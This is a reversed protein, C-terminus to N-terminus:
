GQQYHPAIRRRSLEAMLPLESWALLKGSSIQEALDAAITLCKQGASRWESILEVTKRPQSTEGTTGTESKTTIAKGPVPKILYDSLVQNRLEDGNIAYMWGGLGDLRRARWEDDARQIEYAKGWDWRLAELTNKNTKDSPVDTVTEQGPEM